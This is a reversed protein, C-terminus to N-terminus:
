IDALTEGDNDFIVRSCDSTTSSMDCNYLGGTVASKQGRLAKARPAGVLLRCCICTHIPGMRVVILCENNSQESM